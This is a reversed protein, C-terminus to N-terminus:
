DTTYYLRLTFDLNAEYVEKPHNNVRQRVEPLLDFVYERNAKLNLRQIIRVRNFEGIRFEHLTKHSISHDESNRTYEVIKFITSQFIAGGIHPPHTYNIYHEELNFDMILDFDHVPKLKNDYKFIKYM